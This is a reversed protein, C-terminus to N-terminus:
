WRSDASSTASRISATSAAPTGASRSVSTGSQPKLWVARQAVCRWAGRGPRRGRGRARDRGSSSSAHVAVADRHEAGPQDAVEVRHGQVALAAAVPDTDDVRAARAAALREALAPADRLRRGVQRRRDVVGVGVDHDDGQRVEEVLLRDLEDGLGALGHQARLREPPGGLLRAPHERHDLLGAHEGAVELVQAVRGLRELRDRGRRAPRMPSTVQTRDRSVCGPGWLAQNQSPRSVPPPAIMSRPQWQMSIMRLKTPLPFRGTSTM